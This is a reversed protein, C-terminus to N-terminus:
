EALRKLSYIGSLGRVPKPKKENKSNFHHKFRMYNKSVFDKFGIVGSDAFYRTRYRFRDNRSLEFERNREKELIRNGIVKGQGAHGTPLFKRVPTSNVQSLSAYEEPAKGKDFRSIAGAEYVFQRYGRSIREKESKVNYNAFRFALSIL